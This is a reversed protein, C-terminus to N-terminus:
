RYRHAPSQSGNKAESPVIELSTRIHRILSNNLISPPDPAVQAIVVVGAMLSLVPFLVAFSWLPFGTPVKSSKPENQPPPNSATPKGIKTGSPPSPAKIPTESPDPLKFNKTEPRRSRDPDPARSEWPSFSSFESPESNSDTEPVELRRGTTTVSTSTVTILAKINTNHSKTSTTSLATIFRTQASVSVSLAMAAIVLAIWTTKWM